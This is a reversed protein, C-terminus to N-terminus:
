RDRRPPVGADKSGPPPGPPQPPPISAPGSKPPAVRTAASVARARRAELDTSRFSAAELDAWQPLHDPGPDNTVPELGIPSLLPSRRTNLDVETPRQRALRDRTRVPPRWREPVHELLDGGWTLTPTIVGRKFPGVVYHILPQMVRWRVWAVPTAARFVRSLRMLVRERRSLRSTYIEVFRHIEPWSNTMEYTKQEPHVSRVALFDNPLLQPLEDAFALRLMFEADFAYHMDERFGGFREFLGRRWFSSPQPVHWPVLMWWHRGRVRGECYTPPKPRWVRLRKPPTGEEVDFAGGAVWSCPREELAAGATECAGPLFYDDSNLYAVIEGSTRELGKNIADSQGDDPESVWWALRDEYRRIIEITEDSSGADVIVYELNPYGQDLVSRITREIFRGQNFSPTIVTLKPRVGRRTYTRYSSAGLANKEHDPAGPSPRVPQPIPATRPM